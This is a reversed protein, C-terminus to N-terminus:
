EVVECCCGAGIVWMLGECGKKVVFHCLIFWVYRVKLM